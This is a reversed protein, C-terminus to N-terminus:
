APAPPPQPRLEVDNETLRTEAKGDRVLAILDERVSADLFGGRIMDAVYIAEPRGPLSM